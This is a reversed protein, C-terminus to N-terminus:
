KVRDAISPDLEVNWHALVTIIIIAVQATDLFHSFTQSDDALAQILDCKTSDPDIIMFENRRRTHHHLFAHLRENMM